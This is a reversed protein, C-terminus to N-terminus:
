QVRRFTRTLYRPPPESEEGGFLLPAQITFSDGDTTVAFGTVAPAGYGPTLEGGTVDGSLDDDDGSEFTKLDPSVRVMRPNPQNLELYDFSGDERIIFKDEALHCPSLFDELNDYHGYNPAPSTCVQDRAEEGVDDHAVSARAIEWTGALQGRSTADGWNVARSAPSSTSGGGSGGCGALLPLAINVSIVSVIANRAWRRHVFKM